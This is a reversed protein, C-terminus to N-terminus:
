FHKNRSKAYGWCVFAIAAVISIAAYSGIVFGIDQVKWLHASDFESALTKLLLM